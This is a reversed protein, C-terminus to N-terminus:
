NPHRISAGDCDGHINTATNRGGKETSDGPVTEQTKPEPDFLDIGESSRNQRIRARKAVYGSHM